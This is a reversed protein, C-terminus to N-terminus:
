FDTKSGSDSFQSFRHFRLIVDFYAVKGTFSSKVCIKGLCATHVTLRASFFAM